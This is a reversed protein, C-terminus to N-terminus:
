LRSFDPITLQPAFHSPLVFFDFDILVVSVKELMNSLFDDDCQENQPLVSMSLRIDQKM